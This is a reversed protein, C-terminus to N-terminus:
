KRRLRRYALISLDDPKGIVGSELVHGSQMRGLATQVMVDVQPVLSGARLTGTMERVTLNDSLGDSCLLLTDGFRMKLTPGVDLRLDRSGVSNSVYHRDPHVIAEGPGMMGSEVAYGVPSHDISQWRVRGKESVLLIMSDGAHVPRVTAGTIIAAAVTSGGGSTSKRIEESAVEIADLVANRLRRSSRGASAIHDRFKEVVIRSAVAGDAEGGLGDALVLVCTRETVPLLAASDENPENHAAREPGATVFWAIEGVATERGCAEHMVSDILLVAGDAPEPTKGTDGSEDAAAAAPASRTTALDKGPPLLDGEVATEDSSSERSVSEDSAPKDSAGSTHSGASNDGQAAETSEVAETREASERLMASDDASRAARRKKPADESSDPLAETAGEPPPNEGQAPM